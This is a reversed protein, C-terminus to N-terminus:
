KKKAESVIGWIIFGIGAALLYIWWSINLRFQATMILTLSVTGCISLVLWRKQRFKLAFAFMIVLMIGIFVSDSVFGSVFCSIEASIVYLVAAAFYLTGKGHHNRWIVAIGAMFLVFGLTIYELVFHEPIDGFPQCYFAGCLLLAGITNTICVPIEAIRGNFSFFYAAAAFWLYWLVVDGMSSTTICILMAPIASFSALSFVDASRKEWLGNKYIIRGGFLMLLYELNMLVLCEENTMMDSNVLSFSTPVMALAPLFLVLNSIKPVSLGTILYTLVLATVGTFYVACNEASSGKNMVSVAFCILVSISDLIVTIRVFHDSYRASFRKFICVGTYVLSIVTICIAIFLEASDIGRWIYAALVASGLYMFVSSVYVMPASEKETKELYLFGCFAAALLYIFPYRDFFVFIMPCVAACLMVGFMLPPIYDKLISEKKAFLVIAAFGAACISFIMDAADFGACFLNEIPCALCILIPIIACRTNKLSDYASSSIVIMVASSVMFIMACVYSVDDSDHIGLALGNLLLAATFLVDSHKTRLKKVFLFVAYMAILSFGALMSKQDDGSILVSFYGTGIYAAFASLYFILVNRKENCFVYVFGCVAGAILHVFPNESQSTYILTCILVTPVMGCIYFLKNKRDKATFNYVCFGVAIMVFLIDAAIYEYGSFIYMMPLSASMLLPILTIKFFFLKEYKESSIVSLVAAMFIFLVSIIECAINDYNFFLIGGDVILSICFIGDSYATRIKDFYVFTFYLAIIVTGSAICGYDGLVLDGFRHASAVAFPAILRIMLNQGRFYLVTVEATMLVMCLFYVVKFNESDGFGSDAFFNVIVALVSSITCVAALFDRTKRGLIDMSSMVASILSILVVFELNLGSYPKFLMFSAACMLVTFPIVSLYENKKSFGSGLFAAAAASCTMFAMIGSDAFRMAILASGFMNIMTFLELTGLFFEDIRKPIKPLVFVLLSASVSVILAFIEDEPVAQRLFFIASASFCILSALGIKKEGYKRMGAFAPLAATLATLSWFLYKLSGRFSFDDGFLSFFGCASMATPLFIGGLLFFVKATKTLNTKKETFVSTAFFIGSFSLLILARVINGISFWAASALIIGALTIFMTGLILKTNASDPHPRERVPPFASAPASAKIVTPFDESCPMKQQGSVASAATNNQVTSRFDAASPQVQQVSTVPRYAFSMDYQASSQLSLSNVNTKTTFLNVECENKQRLSEEYKSCEDPLDSIDFDKDNIKDRLIKNTNVLEKIQTEAHILKESTEGINKRLSENQTKLDKNNKNLNHNIVALVIIAIIELMGFVNM